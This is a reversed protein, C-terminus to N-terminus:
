GPLFDSFAYIRYNQNLNKLAKLDNQDLQFDFVDINERIRKPNSSKPIAAVGLELLYRIAVQAPTKSHKKAIDNITTDTFVSPIERPKVKLEALINKYSPAGVPAYAVVTIGNKHCFDILEPQQLFVHVEVQLNAPQIRASKLVNQIQAINFNSLGITRTKGADVLAEM